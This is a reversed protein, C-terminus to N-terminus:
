SANVAERIADCIQAITEEKLYPHMPLSLVVDCLRTSTQLVEADSTVDRFAKQMHMPKAYYVATPIGQEKLAAAVRDRTQRNEFKVTYQAWSSRM